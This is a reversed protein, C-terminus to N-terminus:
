FWAEVGRRSLRAILEDDSVESWDEDELRARHEETLEVEFREVVEVPDSRFQDRLDSDATLSEILEQIKDESM